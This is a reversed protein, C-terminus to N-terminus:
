NISNHNFKGYDLSTNHIRSDDLPDIIAIQRGNLSAMSDFSHERSYNSELVQKRCLNMELINPIIRPQMEQGVNGM